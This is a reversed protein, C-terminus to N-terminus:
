RSTSKPALSKQFTSLSWTADDGTGETGGRLTSLSRLFIDNIRDVNKNGKALEQAAIINATRQIQERPVGAKMAQEVAASNLDTLSYGIATSTTPADSDGLKNKAALSAVSNRERQAQADLDQGRRTLANREDGQRIQAAQAAISGEGARLDIDRKKSTYDREEREQQTAARRSKENGENDRIVYEDGEVGSMDKNTRKSQLKEQFEALKTDTDYRLQNLLEAKRMEMDQKQQNAIQDGAYDAVGKVFGAGILGWDTAM